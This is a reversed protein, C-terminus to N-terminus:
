KIPTDDRGFLDGASRTSNKLHNVMTEKEINPHKKQLLSLKYHCTDMCIKMEEVLNQDRLGISSTQCAELCEM